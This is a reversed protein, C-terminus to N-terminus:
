GCDALSVNDLDHTPVDRLGKPICGTLQNQSLYLKELNSLSGLARPISGSLQNGWLYLEELGTLSGLERPIAGSLRNQSLVLATLNSLSGLERPISGTLQNDWLHLEKLGTLKGLEPPIAGSLRNGALELKGLGTLSGLEWPIAGGMQNHRLDLHALYSLNGLGSPIAGSLQNDSLSLWVLNTLEDLEPPIPGNLENGRAELERLNSLNGLEPPIPGSLENSGVDLHTLEALSGLEQPVAGSLRNSALHLEQLNSLSGLQPPIAGSMGNEELSLVVVRGGADTFVGHWQCVPADSLWNANNTWRAGGTANYFAVLTDKDPSEAPCAPAASELPPFGAAEHEAFKVYFDEVSIGFAKEFQAQWTTGRKLSRYFEFYSADGRESVLLEVAMMSYRYSGSYKDLGDESGLEALGGEPKVNLARQRTQERIIAYPYVGGWSIARYALYDAGGENIWEPGAPPTLHDPGGKSLESLNSSFIHVLEHAPTKMQRATTQTGRHAAPIWIYRGDVAWASRGALESRAEAASGGFAQRYPAIFDDVNPGFVYVRLDRTIESERLGLSLAYRHMLQFALPINRAVMPHLDDSM